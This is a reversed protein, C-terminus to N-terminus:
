QHPDLNIFYEKFNWTGKIMFGGWSWNFDLCCVETIEHDETVNEILSFSFDSLQVFADSCRNVTTWTNTSSLSHWLSVPWNGCVLGALWLFLAPGSSSPLMMTVTMGVSCWLCVSFQPPDSPCCTCVPLNRFTPPCLLCLPLVCTPKNQLRVNLWLRGQHHCCVNLGILWRMKYIHALLSQTQILCIEGSFDIFRGIIHAKSIQKTTM